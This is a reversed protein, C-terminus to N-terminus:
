FGFDSSPSAGGGVDYSAEWEAMFNREQELDVTPKIDKLDKEAEERAKQAKEKEEKEKQEKKRKEEEEKAKREKQLKKGREKAEELTRQADEEAAQQMKQEREQREKDLKQKEAQAKQANEWVDDEEEDDDDDSDKSNKDTPVTWNTGSFGADEMEEDDDDDDDATFELTNEAPEQQTALEEDESDSDDAGVAFLSNSVPAPAPAPAPSRKKTTKKSKSKAKDKNILNLLKRQAEVPLLDIELDIEDEDGINTAERIIEIVQALKTEDDSNAIENIAYTLEEQEEFSLPKAEAKKRAPAVPASSSTVPTPDSTTSKETKKRKKTSKKTSGTDTSPIAGTTAKSTLEPIITALLGEIQSVQTSLHELVTTQLSFEDRTVNSEFLSASTAKLANLNKEVESSSSNLIRIMRLKPDEEEERKRKKEKELRKKEEQEKKKMEKLEKKTHKKKEKMREVDRFKGNFISLFNKAAQHVIHGPDVNFKMANQFTLRVLRAFEEPTEIENANMKAQVTGLDMPNTIIQHYTPIRQAVPDVPEAFFLGGLADKERMTKLIANCKEMMRANLTSPDDDELRSPLKTARASERRAAGATLANLSKGSSNKKTTNKATPLAKGSPKNSDPKVETEIPATQYIRYLEVQGSNRGHMIFTGILDFTGFSNVGKGYVNYSGQMNKRFKMVIQKDVISQLKSAGRKLKFSGKYNASDVPFVGSETKAHHEELGFHFNSTINNSFHAKSIAWKGSCSIVGNENVKLIGRSIAAFSGDEMSPIVKIDDGEPAEVEDLPILDSDPIDPPLIEKPSAIVPASISKRAKVPLFHRFITIVNEKDLTGTINYKGFMNSGKGEVNWFGANNKKFKLTVDREPIRNRTGDEGTLNFWGTYKGSIPFAETAVTGRYEYEFSNCLGRKNEPDSKIIDLGSSWMGSVRHVVGDQASSMHTIKGRLAVVGTPHEKSPDPLPGEEQILSSNELKRKKFNKKKKEEVVVPNEQPKYKKRLEIKFKKDVAEYDRTCTGFLEFVGYQNTGEGKVSYSEIKADKEEFAIRVGNEQIVRTKDKRKGKASIHVYALSFSGNFTGDKPLETPDEDPGLTRMLDFRQPAHETSSEFNWYGSIVHRRTLENNIYSLTGKLLPLVAEAPTTTTNVTATTTPQEGNNTDKDTENKHEGNTNKHKEEDANGNMDSHNANGNATSTPQSAEDDTDKDVDMKNQEDDSHLIDDQSSGGGKSSEDDSQSSM